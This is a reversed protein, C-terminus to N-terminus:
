FPLIRLNVFKQAAENGYKKKFRFFPTSSDSGFQEVLKRAEQEMLQDQSLEVVEDNWREGNLWTTPHPIFQGNNKQWDPSQKQKELAHIIPILSARDLKLFKDKAKKKNEHRPYSLWFREFDDETMKEVGGNKTVKTIDDDTTNQVVIDKGVRGKGLRVQATWQNDVPRGTIKNTDARPKPDIIEAEPVIQLLLNKYVSDVKRDARILNHESWDTIYAVYDENLIKIFGKVSLVRLNDESSGVLKLVTYAEVVGDDDANMGLHFYLERSDVPM